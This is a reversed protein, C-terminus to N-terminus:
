NLALENSIRTGNRGLVAPGTSEELWLTMAGARRGLGGIIRISLTGSADLFHCDASGVNGDAGRWRLVYFGGFPRRGDAFSYEVSFDGRLGNGWKANSLTVKQGAAANGAAPPQIPEFPAPPAAAAFRAPREDPVPNPAQWPAPAPAALPAVNPGASSADKTGRSQTLLLAVVGGCVLLGFLALGGGVLVFPLPNKGKVARRPTRKAPRDDDDDPEERRRSRPVPAPQESRPEAPLAAARSKQGARATFTASCNECKVTEGLIDEPAFLARSCDPCVLKISM